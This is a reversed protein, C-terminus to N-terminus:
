KLFNMTDHTCCLNSHNLNWNFASFNFQKQSKQRQKVLVILMPLDLPSCQLTLLSYHVNSIITVYAAVNGKSAIVCVGKWITDAELKQLKLTSKWTRWRTAAIEKGDKCRILFRSSGPSSPGISCQLCRAGFIKFHDSLYGKTLFNTGKDSHSFNSIRGVARSKQSYNKIAM